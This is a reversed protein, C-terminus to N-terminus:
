RANRRRGAYGRAARAAAGSARNADTGPCAHRVRSSRRSSRASRQSGSSTGTGAGTGASNGSRRCACGAGGVRRRTGFRCDRRQRRKRPRGRACWRLLGPSRQRTTARRLRSLGRADRCGGPGHGFRICPSGLRRERRSRALAVRDCSEISPEDDTDVHLESAARQELICCHGLNGRFRRYGGAGAALTVLHAWRPWCHLGAPLIDPRM